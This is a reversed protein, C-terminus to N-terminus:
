KREGVLRRVRRYQRDAPNLKSARELAAQAGALDGSRYCVEGLVSYNEATPELGVLKQALMKAESLKRNRILLVRVLSCYGTPRKPALEIGKRLAEEAAGFRKLRALLAGTNLHYTANKPDIRRLQECIELAEGQRRNRLYLHVLGQRCTWNTPDLAAATRWHEEAERLNGHGYYMRGADAHIRALVKAAWARDDARRRRAGVAEDEESRLKKFKGRYERAKDGQGLRAYAIALGYCAKSSDPQIELARKYGEAAKEYEKQQLYAQGLLFYNEGDGPSIKIEKKLAAVAEEPKGMELLAVAYRGYVGRLNPNIRQAKRWLEVAKEYEGKRLAVM